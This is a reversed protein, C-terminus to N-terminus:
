RTELLKGSPEVRNWVDEIHEAECSWDILFRYGTEDSLRGYIASDVWGNCYSTDASLVENSLCSRRFITCGFGNGGVRVVGSGRHRCLERRKDWHCYADTYRQRYPAAVSAVRSSFSKMLRLGTDLHPIVDDELIWVFETTVDRIMRNYIKGVELTVEAQVDKERRDMDALGARSAKRKVYRIDQYDSQYLWERIEEGFSVDDSGDYMLLKIQEKPWTQEELFERMRPWAWDRGSLPIFLTLDEMELSASKYYPVSGNRLHENSGHMRYLLMSEQKAVTWGARLVDRWIYWDAMPAYGIGKKEFAETLELAHRRVLASCHIYNDREMMERNFPPFRKTEYRDGITHLDSTVIGVRYDSFMPMGGSLYDREMMDDADVFCVIDGKTQRFGFARSLYVDQYEVREYRVGDLRYDRVVDRTNDSSSDDVVLIEQPRRTQSLVSNICDKLYRGYNHSVIVVSVSNAGAVGKKLNSRVKAGLKRKKRKM